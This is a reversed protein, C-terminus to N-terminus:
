VQVSKERKIKEKLHRENKNNEVIPSPKLLFKKAGSVTDLCKGDEKKRTSYMFKIVFMENGM